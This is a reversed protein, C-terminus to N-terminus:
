FGFKNTPDDIPSVLDSHRKAELAQNDDVGDSRKKDQKLSKTNPDLYTLFPQNLFPPL